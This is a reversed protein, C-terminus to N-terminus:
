RSPSPPLRNLLLRASDRVAGVPYNLERAVFRYYSEAAISDGAAEHLVGAIAAEQWRGPLASIKGYEVAAAGFNGARAFMDALVLHDHEWNPNAAFARRVDEPGVEIELLGRTTDFKFFYDQGRSGVRPSYSSYYGGWLTSDRYWVRLSPGDGAILGINNPIRAFFVRSHPPLTPYRRLLDDHLGKLLNGARRLYWETGWDTSPSLAVVARLLNLVVLLGAAIKLRPALWMGLLVWVGLSGVVAYYAHWGISPLLAICSGLVSWAVAFAVLRRRPYPEKAGPEPEADDRTRRSLAWLLATTICAGLVGSALTEGVLSGPHPLRDLNVQALLTRSVM